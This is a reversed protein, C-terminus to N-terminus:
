KGSKRLAEAGSIIELIETTISNQRAKNYMIQLERILSEANETAQYMATMRSGHESTISELLINYFKSKLYLPILEKLIEDASPELIYDYYSNTSKSNKIKLPLFQDMILDHVVPNKYYNYFVYIKNYERKVYSDVLEDWVNFINKKDPKEILEHYSKLPAFNKLKLYEEGKKGICIISLRKNKWLDIYNENIIELFKKNTNVNFSGCLGKNSTILVFLYKFQEIKDNNKNNNVSREFFINNKVINNDLNKEIVARLIEDLKEVYERSQNLYIQSKRLKAASVMKMASTIQKTSKVSLLRTRLEKLGAM